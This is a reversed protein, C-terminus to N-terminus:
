KAPPRQVLEFTRVKMSQGVRVVVAHPGFETFMLNRLAITLILSSIEPLTAPYTQPFRDLSRGSPTRIDVEVTTKEQPDGVVEAAAYAVALKAPVKEAPLRNTIAQIYYQGLDDAYAKEAFLVWECTAM